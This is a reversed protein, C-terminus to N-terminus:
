EVEELPHLFPPLGHLGLFRTVMWPSTWIKCLSLSANFHLRNLSDM